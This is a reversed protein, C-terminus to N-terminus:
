AIEDEYFSLLLNNENGSLIPYYGSTLFFFLQLESLGNGIGDMDGM